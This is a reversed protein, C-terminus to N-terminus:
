ISRSKTHTVVNFRNFRAFIELGIITSFELSSNVAFIAFFVRLARLHVNPVQSQM